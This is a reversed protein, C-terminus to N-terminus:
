RQANIRSYSLSAVICTDLSTHTWPTGHDTTARPCGPTEALNSDFEGKRSYEDEWGGGGTARGVLFCPKSGIEVIRRASGVFGQFISHWCRPPIGLVPGVLKRFSRRKGFAGSPACRLSLRGTTWEGSCRRFFVSHFIYNLLPLFAFFKWELVVTIYSNSPFYNHLATLISDTFHFITPFFDQTCRELFKLGKSHFM